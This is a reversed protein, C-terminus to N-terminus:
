SNIAIQEKLSTIGEWGAANSYTEIWIEPYYQYNDQGTKQKWANNTLYLIPEFTLNKPMMEPKKLLKEYFQKGNAIACCRAYLYEDVSFYDDEWNKGTHEAFKKGDIAFLKEALIDDFKTIEEFNLLSLAEIAPACIATNNEIKKWDLLDIISWFVLEDMGSSVLKEETQVRVVAKPYKVQLDHLIAPNFADLSVEFITNM